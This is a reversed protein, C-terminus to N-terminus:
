PALEAATRPALKSNSFTYTLIGTIKSFPTGVAYTNDLATYLEDDIRLNGTVLFEDFDQPADANMTLVTVNTVEVLMSEHGEADAGGTAITAPNSIAIPAFPLTTGPNTITVTPSEIESLDFFETYTGAIDVQNGVSVTPSQSGTFVFIGSFPQLSTDQVYFGRSSGSNPRVATVYAGTILVTSGV